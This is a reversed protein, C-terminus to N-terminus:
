LHTALFINMKILYHCIKLKLQVKVLRPLVVKMHQEAPKGEAQVM